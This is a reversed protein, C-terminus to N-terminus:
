IKNNQKLFSNFVGLSDCHIKMLIGAVDGGKSFVCARHLLVAWLTTKSLLLSFVSIDRELIRVVILFRPICVCFGSVSLCLENIDWICAITSTVDRPALTGDM